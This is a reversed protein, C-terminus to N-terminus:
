KGVVNLVLPGDTPLRFSQPESGPCQYFGTVELHLEGEPSGQPVKTPIVYVRLGDSKPIGTARMVESVHFGRLGNWVRSNQGGCDTRKIIAWKVDVTEGAVVDSSEITAYGEIPDPAKRMWLTTAMDGVTMSTSFIAAVILAASQTHMM